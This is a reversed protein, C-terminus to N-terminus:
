QCVGFCETMPGCAGGDLHCAQVACTSLAERGCSKGGGCDGDDTCVDLCRPCCGPGFSVVQDPRCTPQLCITQGNYTVAHGDLGSRRAGCYGDICVSSPVPQGTCDSDSHCALPPPSCVVDPQPCCPNCTNRTVTSGNDCLLDLIGCVVSGLACHNTCQGGAEPYLDSCICVPALACGQTDADVRWYGECERPNPKQVAPCSVNPGGDPVRCVGATCVAPAACDDNGDCGGVGDPVCVSCCPPSTPDLRYHAPCQAAAEPPCEGTCADFVCVQECCDVADREPHQGSPCDIPDLVVCVSDGCDNAPVCTPCCQGSLTVLRENAGCTPNVCLGCGTPCNTGTVNGDSDHCKECTDGNGLTIIDCCDICVDEPLGSLRSNYSCSVLTLSILVFIPPRVM